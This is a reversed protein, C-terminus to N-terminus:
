AVGELVRDRRPSVIPDDPSHAPRRALLTLVVTTAFILSGVAFHITRVIDSGITNRHLEPLVMSGFRMMWAEVGVMIQVVLLAVLIRIMIRFRRDEKPRALLWIAVAVVAFAFLFHLRQTLRQHSHRVIAGFVIQLYVLGALWLTLRSLGPSVVSASPQRWWDSTLVTISVLLAFILHATCGHLTALDTGIWAHLKVRMGGLVGQFSVALLAITGLWRMWRRSDARWLWVCLVISCFGVLWGAFRHSHEITFHLPSQGQKEAEETLNRTVIYLPPTPWERDAMGARRTTVLSGLILLALTACVTLVAWRHLWRSSGTDPISPTM